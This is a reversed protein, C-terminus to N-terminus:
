SQKYSKYRIRTAYTLNQRFIHCTSNISRAHMRMYHFWGKITFKHLFALSEVQPSPMNFRSSHLSPYGKVQFGGVEWSRIKSQRYLWWYVEGALQGGGQLKNVMLLNDLVWAVHNWITDLSTDYNSRQNSNGKGKPLVPQYNSSLPRM